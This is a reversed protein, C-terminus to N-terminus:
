ANMCFKVDSVVDVINSNTRRQGFSDIMDGFIVAMLPMSVGNASAGISGIIMLLMDIGDAFVFLKQFPVTNVKDDAEGLRLQPPHRSMSSDKEVLEQSKLSNVDNLNEMSQVM